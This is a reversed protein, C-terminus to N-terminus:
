YLHAIFTGLIDILVKITIQAEALIILITCFIFQFILVLLKIHLM